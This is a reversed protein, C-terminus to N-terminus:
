TPPPCSRGPTPDNPAESRCRRETRIHQFIRAAPRSSVRSMPEMAFMPARPALKRESGSGSRGGPRSGGPARSLQGGVGKADQNGVQTCAKGAGSAELCPRPMRRGPKPGFKQRNNEVHTMASRCSLSTSSPSPEASDCARRPHSACMHRRKSIATTRPLTTETNRANRETCDARRQKHAMQRASPREAPACLSALKGRSNHHAPM